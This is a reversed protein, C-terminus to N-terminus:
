REIDNLNNRANQRRDWEDDLENPNPNQEDNIGRRFM